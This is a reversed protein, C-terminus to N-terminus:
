PPLEYLRDYESPFQSVAEEFPETALDRLTTLVAEVHRRTHELNLEPFERERNEVRRVFEDHTIAM